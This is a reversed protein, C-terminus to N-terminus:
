GFVYLRMNGRDMRKKGTTRFVNKETVAQKVALIVVNIGFRTFLVKIKYFNGWNIGKLEHLQLFLAKNQGLGHKQAINFISKGIRLPSFLSKFNSFKKLIL